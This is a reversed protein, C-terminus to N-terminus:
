RNLPRCRPLDNRDGSFILHEAEGVTGGAGEIHADIQAYLEGFKNNGKLRFYAPAAQLPHRRTRRSGDSESPVLLFLHAKPDTEVAGGLTRQAQRRFPM